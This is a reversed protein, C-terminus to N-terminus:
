AIAAWGRRPCEAFISNFLNFRMPHIWTVIRNEMLQLTAWYLPLNSLAQGLADIVDVCFIEKNQRM